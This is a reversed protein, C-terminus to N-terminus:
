VYLFFGILGCLAILLIPHSLLDTLRNKAMLPTLMSLLVAGFIIWSRYDIFSAPTMLRYAALGIIVVVMCRIALMTYQYIINGSWRDRIRMYLLALVFMILVGPLVVATTALLSGLANGTATYGVYTACNVGIPGPTVQSIAVIDVFETQSMWGYRTVEREVLSVVAMGGGFGLVGVKLFSLFLQLYLM